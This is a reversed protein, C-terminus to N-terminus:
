LHSEKLDLSHPTQHKKRDKSIVWAPKVLLVGLARKIEYCQVISEASNSKKFKKIAYSFVTTGPM